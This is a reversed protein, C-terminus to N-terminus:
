NGTKGKKTKAAASTTAAKQYQQAETAVQKQAVAIEKKHKDVEEHAKKAKDAEEREDTLAAKVRADEEVAKQVEVQISGAQKGAEAAATRLQKINADAEIREREMETPRRITKSLEATLERKKDDALSTDDRVEGLRVSAKEAEKAAAQYDTQERIQKSLAKQAADVSRLAADRQAAAAPLGLKAGIAAMATQRSKQIKTLSAQHAADAKQADTEAKNLERNADALKKQAADLEQKAQQPSQAQKSKPAQASEAVPALALAVAVLSICKVHIQVTKFPGATLTMGLWVPIVKQLYCRWTAILPQVKPIVRM